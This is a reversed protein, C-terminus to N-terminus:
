TLHDLTRAHHTANYVQQRTPMAFSPKAKHHKGKPRGRGKAGEKKCQTHPLRQFRQKAVQRPSCKGDHITQVQSQVRSM